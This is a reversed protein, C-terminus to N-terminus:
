RFVGEIMREINRNTINGQNDRINMAVNINTGYSVSMAQNIADVAHQRGKPSNANINIVYGGNAGQHLALGEDTLVPSSYMNEDSYSSAESGAPASPNGGVFGALMMSGAIGIAGFALDRGSIRAGSIANGANRVVTETISNGVDDTDVWEQNRILRSANDQLARNTNVVNNKVVPSDIGMEEITGSIARVMKDTMDMDNGTYVLARKSDGSINVGQGFFRMSEQTLSVKSGLGSYADIAEEKTMGPPLMDLEKRDMINNRLWQKMPESSRGTSGTGFMARNAANYDDLMAENVHSENKPSLFGEQIALTLKQMANRQDNSLNINEDDSIANILRRQRYLYSNMEGASSKRIKSATDLAQAERSLGFAFSDILDERDGDMSEIFKLGEERYRGPDKILEIESMGTNEMVGRQIGQFLEMQRSADETTLARKDYPRLEGAISFMEAIHTDLSGGGIGDKFNRMGSQETADILASYNKNYEASFYHMSAKADDFVHEDVLRAKGQANLREYSLYDLKRLEEKGNAGKVYADAKMTVVGVGDSDYDGHKSEWLTASTLARDGTVSDSLYLASVSVSKKYDAPERINLALTGKTKLHKSMEEESMGLEDLYGKDFYGQDQFYKRGVITFDYEKNNKAAESLNIGDFELGSHYASKEGGYLQIGSATFRASDELRASGLQALGKNKGEVEKAILGKIDEVNQNMSAIRKVKQDETLGLESGMDKHFAEQKRQLSILKKQFENGIEEEGLFQESSFPIALYRDAENTYLQMDGLNPNHLDIMHAKGYLSELLGENTGGSTVLDSLSTVNFGGKETMSELNSLRGSNWASALTGSTTSHFLELKKLGVNEYGVNKLGKISSDIDVGRDRLEALRAQVKPDSSVEGMKIALNDGPDVLMDRRLQNGFDKMIARNEYGDKLIAKGEDNLYAAHGFAKNFQTKDMGDELFRQLNDEDYREWEFMQLNRETIKVGKSVARESPTAKSSLFSGRDHADMASIHTRSVDYKIGGSEYLTNLENRKIIEKIENTDIVADAPAIGTEIDLGPIAKSLQRYSEKEGVKSKLEESLRSIVGVPDTHKKEAKFNNSIYQVDSRIGAHELAARLGDMPASRENLLAERAKEPSPYYKSITDLIEGHTVNGKKSKILSGLATNSIDGSKLSDIYEKRPVTGIEKELGLDKLLGIIKEDKSSGLGGAMFVAMNKELGTEALKRHPNADFSDIYIGLNYTSNLVKMSESYPDSSKIIRDKNQNLVHAIDEEKALLGGTTFAGFRQMGAEKNLVSTPGTFGKIKLVEEGANIFKGNRYRFEVDGNAGIRIQPALDSKSKVEDITDLNFEAMKYLGVRQTSGRRKFVTDLLAPDAISSGENLHANTIAEAVYSDKDIIGDEIAKNIVSRLDHDEISLRDVVISTDTRSNLGKLKRRSTSFEESTNLAKGVSVSSLSKQARLEREVESADFAMSRSVQQHHGRKSTSYNDGFRPSNYLTGVFNSPDKNEFSFSNIMNKLNEDGSKEGISDLINPMNLALTVRENYTLKDASLNSKKLIKKFSESKEFTTNNFVGKEDLDSLMPIVRSVDFHMNSRIDQADGKMLSSSEGIESTFEKLYYLVQDTLNGEKEAREFATKARYMQRSSEGILTGLKPVGKQPFIGGPVNVKMNGIKTYFMGDEFIDKPLNDLQTQLGNAILSISKSDKDYLIEGKTKSIGGLFEEMFATTDKMRLERFKLLTQAHEQSYGAKRLDDASVKDFLVNEVINRAETHISNKNLVSPLPVTDNVGGIIERMKEPTIDLSSIASKSLVDQVKAEKIRGARLDKERVGKLETILRHTMTESTENNLDIKSLDSGIIGNSKTYELFRKIEKAKETDNNTPKLGRRERLKNALSMNSTDLNLTLIDDLDDHMGPVKVSKSPKNNYGSIDVDFKNLDIGRIFFDKNNSAADISGLQEAAYGQLAQHYQSLYFNQINKNSGGKAEAANVMERMLDQISESYENSSIASDISERFMSGGVINKKDYYEYVSKLLSDAPTNVDGKTVGRSVEYTKNKIEELFDERVQSNFEIGRRSAEKKMDDLMALIGKEKTINVDRKSRAAADNKIRFTSEAIQKDISFGEHTLGKESFRWIGMEKEVQKGAEGKLAKFVGGEGKEATLLMNQNMTEEIKERTGVLVVPSAGKFSKKGEVVPSLKVSVIEDNIMSPHVGEITDIWEKTMEHGHVSDVTYSVGRQVPWQGFPEKSVGGEGINYGGATRMAGTLSDEVFSMVGSGNSDIGISNKAYFLQQSGGKINAKIPNDKLGGVVYELFSEEGSFKAQKSLLKSMAEIDTKGVHAVKGDYFKPVFKRVLPELQFHTLGESKLIKRREDETYLSTWDDSLASARLASLPDFHRSGWNMNNMKTESILERAGESFNGSNMFQKMMPNDFAGSNHGVFSLGDSNARELASFLEKEWAMIKKGKYEVLSGAQKEGISLHTNLGRKIAEIDLHSSVDEDGAFSDFRFIGPSIESYSTKESGTKMMRQAFVKHRQTIGRGKEIDDVLKQYKGKFEPKIGVISGYFNNDSISGDSLNAVGFAFETVTDLVQQGTGDIGGVTELDFAMFKGAQKIAEYSEKLRAPAISVNRGTSQYLLTNDLDLTQKILDNGTQHKKTGENAVNRIYNFFSESIKKYTSKINEPESTKPASKIEGSGKLIRSTKSNAITDSINSYKLMSISDKFDQIYKKYEGPNDNIWTDVAKEIQKSDGSKTISSDIISDKVKEKISSEIYSEFNGDAISKNFTGSNYHIRNKSM